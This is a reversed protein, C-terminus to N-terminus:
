PKLWSDASGGVGRLHKRRLKRYLGENGRLGACYPGLQGSKAYATLEDHLLQIERRAENRITNEEEIDSARAAECEAFGLRAASLWIYLNVVQELESTPGDVEVTVPDTPEPQSGGCGFIALGLGVLVVIAGLWVGRQEGADWARWKIKWNEQILAGIIAAGAVLCLAGTFVATNWGHDYGM